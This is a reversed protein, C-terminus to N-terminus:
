ALYRQLKDGNEVGARSLSALLTLSALLLLAAENEIVMVDSPMFEKRIIANSHDPRKNSYEIECFISSFHHSFTRYVMRLLIIKYKLMLWM